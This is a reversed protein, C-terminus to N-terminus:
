QDDIAEALLRRCRVIPLGLAQHMAQATAEVDGQFLGLLGRLLNKTPVIM